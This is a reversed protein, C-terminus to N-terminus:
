PAAPRLRTLRGDDSGLYVSGDPGEAVLRVRHAKRDLIREELVVRGEAMVVRNLHQQAMSGSLFSGKWGPFLDGRYLLLGSPAIAPTWVWAPPEMGERRTIGMGVAGGDYEWGFSVVPWGYNAGRTVRNLEDGGLPGHENCWLEGSRPDVALGQANRLGYAWTEARARPRGAFPNDAPVSGDPRLRVIKGMHNRLDQVRDQRHRDGITVFLHGDVFAMRGGYHFRDENWAEATFIREREAITTDRLRFRDVATTSREATGHSYSVYIWGNSEHEPHLALDHVGSDEGTVVQTGIDGSLPTLSGAKELLSVRAARREALLGRGDPLFVLATPAQLGTALTAVELPVGGPTTAAACAGIGLAASFAALIRM